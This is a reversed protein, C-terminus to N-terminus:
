IGRIVNSNYEESSSVHTYSVTHAIDYDNGRIQHRIKVGDVEWESTLSLDGRNLAIGWNEPVNKWLDDNWQEKRKFVPTGYKTQLSDDLLDFDQIYLSGCSYNETVVVGIDTLAENENFRFFTMAEKGAAKGEHVVVKGGGRESASNGLKEKVIDIDMGLCIGNGFAFTSKNVIKAVDALFDDMSASEALSFAFPLIMALALFISVMRKM